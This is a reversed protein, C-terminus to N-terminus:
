KDSRQLRIYSEILGWVIMVIGIAVLVKAVFNMIRLESLEKVSIIGLGLGISGLGAGIIALITTLVVGIQPHQLSALIQWWLTKFSRGVEIDLPTSFPTGRHQIGLLHSYWGNIFILKDEDKNVKAIWAINVKDVDEEKHEKLERIDKLRKLYRAFYDEDIYLAECYVSRNKTKGDQNQICLLRRRHNLPHQKDLEADQIW